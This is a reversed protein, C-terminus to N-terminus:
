QLTVGLHSRKGEFYYIFPIYNNNNNKKHIKKKKLLWSKLKIQVPFFELNMWVNM